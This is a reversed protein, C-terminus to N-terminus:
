HLAARSVPCPARTHAFAEELTGQFWNIESVTVPGSGAREAASKPGPVPEKHDPCGMLAIAAAVLAATRLSAGM